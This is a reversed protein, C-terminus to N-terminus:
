LYEAIIKVIDDSKIKDFAKKDFIIELNNDQISFQILRENLLDIDGMTVGIKKFFIKKKGELNESNWNEIFISIEKKKLYDLNLNFSIINNESINRLKIKGIVKTISKCGNLNSISM